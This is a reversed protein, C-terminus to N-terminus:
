RELKGKELDEIPVVVLRGGNEIRLLLRDKANEARKESSYVKAEKRRNWGIFEGYRVGHFQYIKGLFYDKDIGGAISYNRSQREIVCKKKM